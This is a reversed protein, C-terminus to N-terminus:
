ACISCVFAVYSFDLRVKAPSIKPTNSQSKNLKSYPKLNVPIPSSSKTESSPSSTARLPTSDGILAPQKMAPRNNTNRKETSTTSSDPTHVDFSKGRNKPTALRDISNTVSSRDKPEISRGRRNPTM